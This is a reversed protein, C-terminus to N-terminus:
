EVWLMCMKEDGLYLNPSESLIWWWWRSVQDDFYIHGGGDESTDAMYAQGNTITHLSSCMSYSETLWMFPGIMTEISQRRIHFIAMKNDGVQWRFFVMLFIWSFSKGQLFTNKFLYCLSLWCNLKFIRTFPLLILELLSSTLCLFILSAESFSTKRSFTVYWLGWCRRKRPLPTALPLSSLYGVHNCIHHVNCGLLRNHMFEEHLDLALLADLHWFYGCCSM